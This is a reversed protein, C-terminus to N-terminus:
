SLDTNRWNNDISLVQKTNSHGKSMSQHAVWTHHICRCMGNGIFAMQSFPEPCKGSSPIAVGKEVLVALNHRPHSIEWGLCIPPASHAPTGGVPVSLGPVLPLMHLPKPISCMHLKSVWHPELTLAPPLQPQLPSCTRTRPLTLSESQLVISAM